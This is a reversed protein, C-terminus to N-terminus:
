DLDDFVGAVPYNAILRALGVPTQGSANPAHPDAGRDSLLTVM